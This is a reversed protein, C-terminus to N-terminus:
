SRHHRGEQARQAREQGPVAAARGGGARLGERGRFSGLVEHVVGMADSELRKSEKYHRRLRSKSVNALFALFPMVALALLALETDIRLVVLFVSVLTVIAAILPVLNEVLIAGLSTSDYQIRYLSDATGRRDHFSFSLRQLHSFLRSRLRLTLHETTHTRLVTTGLTQLDTLLVVLVQLVAAVVLLGATTITSPLVADIWGPPEEGGLVTDVVLALPIPTLLFLPTALFEAGLLLM